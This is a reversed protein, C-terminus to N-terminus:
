RSLARRSGRRIDAVTLDRARVAAADWVCGSACDWSRYWAFEPDPQSSHPWHPKAVHPMFPAIVVAHFDRAVRNFRICQGAVGRDAGYHMTFDWMGDEDEIWLVRADPRFVIETRCRLTSAPRDAASRCWERWGDHRRTDVSFWLGSPKAHPYRAQVSSVVKRLPAASYHVLRAAPDPPASRM